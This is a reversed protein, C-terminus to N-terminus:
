PLFMRVPPRFFQAHPTEVVSDIKGHRRGAGDAIDKFAFAQDRIFLSLASRRTIALRKNTGIVLRTHSAKGCVNAAESLSRVGAVIPAAVKNWALLLGVIALLIISAGM